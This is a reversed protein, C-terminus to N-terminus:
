LGDRDAEPGSNEGHRAQHSDPDVPLPPQDALWGKLRLVTEALAGDSLSEPETEVLKRAHRHRQRIAQAALERYEERLYFRDLASLPAALEM